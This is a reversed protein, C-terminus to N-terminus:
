TRRRCDLADDTNYYGVFRYLGNEIPRSVRSYHLQSIDFVVSDYSTVDLAVSWEPLVLLGRLGSSVFAFMVGYCPEDADRHANLLTDRFVMVHDSLLRHETESEFHARTEEYHETCLVRASMESEGVPIDFLASPPDRYPRIRKMSVITRDSDADTVRIHDSRDTSLVDYQTLLDSYDLHKKFRERRKVIETCM